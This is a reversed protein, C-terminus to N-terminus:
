SLDLNRLQRILTDSSELTRIDFLLRGDQLRGIVPMPLERFAKSLAVLASDRKVLPTIEIAVSPLQDLPLAGSGIQSSTEVINITAIGKLAAEFAPLVAEALERIDNVPRALYRLTPLEQLLTEPHRYLKLVETLAAITMKDVRLARKLPNNKVADIMTKKGAIIGAQPGGLLKDGSFTVVDAGWALVEQVTPEHELGYDELNVLTGSGLDALLAIDHEVALSALEEYSVEQTFGRIEYNSTHVKMLLGTKDSLAQQYDKLHTRNTAGVEKLTCGSKEMVDPIRFSGGIEVLEGRSICVEKGLAFTNLCILVAAANNNVITVAEAGTLEILMAEIHDDRDGRRGAALDFELNSNGRSIEVVAELAATPLGARGLNTHLVTGTLNIVEKLSSEDSIAMSAAVLTKIDTISPAPLSEDKRIQERLDHLVDRITRTTRVHGYQTIINLFEDSSLLKDVSPILKLPNPGSM